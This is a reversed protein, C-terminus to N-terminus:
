EIICEVAFRAKSTTLLRRPADLWKMATVGDQHAQIAYSPEGQDRDMDFVVVAGSDFGALIERSSPVQLRQSCSFSSLLCNPIMPGITNGHNLDDIM